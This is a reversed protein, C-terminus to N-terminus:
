YGIKKKFYNNQRYSKDNNEANILNNNIKEKKHVPLTLRM